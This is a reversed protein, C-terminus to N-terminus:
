VLVEESLCGEYLDKILREANVVRTLTASKLLDDLQQQKYGRCLQSDLQPLMLALADKDRGELTDFQKVLHTQRIITSKSFSFKDMIANMCRNFGYKKVQEDVLAVDSFDSWYLMQVLRISELLVSSDPSCHVKWEEVVDDATQRAEVKELRHEIGSIKSILADVDSELLSLSQKNKVLVGAMKKISSANKFIKTNSNLVENKLSEIAGSVEVNFDNQHEELNGTLLNIIRSSFINESKLVHAKEISIAIQNVLDIAAVDNLFDYKNTM